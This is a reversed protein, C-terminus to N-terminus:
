RGSAPALVASRDLTQRVAGAIHVATVLVEAELSAAFPVPARPAGIRVPQAKLDGWAHESVEAVIEGGFGGARVAEHAVVLRGTKRVSGLVTERDWPWLSRLDIVEVSVGDAALEEAAALAQRVMASWAVVTVDDGERAVAAAGIRIPASDPDVEGEVNLLLKHELFVVPDDARISARLLSYADQPTAPAVVTLGPIHVWIAELSQSHHAATGPAIGGAGRIVMPVRAQGGFMYRIKAAQNIIEDTACIMLDAYRLEVVPRTGTVAAGVGAGAITSESIPTSVIRTAGFECVLDRYQGGTGGEVAIDEGLAWVSPDARMETALALRTAAGYTMLSTM